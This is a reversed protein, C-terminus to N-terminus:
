WYVDEGEPEDPWRANIHIFCSITESLVRNGGGYSFFVDGFPSGVSVNTEPEEIQPIRIERRESPNDRIYKIDAAEDISFRTKIIMHCNGSESEEDANFRPIRDYADCMYGMRTWSHQGADQLPHYAHETQWNWHTFSIGKTSLEFLALVEDGDYSGTAQGTQSATASCEVRDVGKGSEIFDSWETKMSANATITLPMLPTSGREPNRFLYDVEDAKMDAINPPLKLNRMWISRTEDRYDIFIRLPISVNQQGTYSGSSTYSYSYDGERHSNEYSGTATARWELEACGMLILWEDGPGRIAGEPLDDGGPPDDKPPDVIPGDGNGGGKGTVTVKATRTEGDIKATIIAVGEKRGTFEVTRGDDDADIV